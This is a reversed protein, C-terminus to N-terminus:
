KSKKCGFVVTIGSDGFKKSVLSNKRFSSPKTQRIRWTHPKEDVKSAIYDHNKAWLIAEQKSFKDKKFILTQISMNVPCSKGGRAYEDIPGGQKYQGITFHREIEKKLKFPLNQFEVLRSEAVDELVKNKIDGLETIHDNIFHLRQAKTWSNWVEEPSKGKYNNPIQGGKAMNKNLEAIKYMEQISHEWTTAVKWVFDLADQETNFSKEKNNFDLISYSRGGGVSGNYKGEERWSQTVYIYDMIPSIDGKTRKGRSSESKVFDSLQPKEILGGKAMTTKFQAFSSMSDVGDINRKRLGFIIDKGKLEFPTIDTKKGSLGPQLSFMGKTQLQGEYFYPTENTAIFIDGEKVEASRAEGKLVEILGPETAIFTKNIVGGNAMNVEGVRVVMKRENAIFDIISFAQNLVQQKGLVLPAELTQQYEDMEDTTVYPNFVLEYTDDNLRKVVADHHTIDYLYNKILDFDEGPNGGRHYAKGGHKMTNGVLYLIKSDAESHEYGSIDIDGENFKRELEDWSVKFEQTPFAELSSVPKLTVGSEDSSVVKSTVNAKKDTIITECSIHKIGLKDKCLCDENNNDNDNNEIEGGDEFSEREKKSTLAMEIAQKKPTGHKRFNVYDAFQRRTFERYPYYGDVEENKYKDDVQGGQQMKTEMNNNKFTKGGNELLMEAVTNYKKYAGYPLVRWEYYNEEQKVKETLLSLKKTSVFDIAEQKDDFMRSKLESVDDEVYVVKYKSIKGGHKVNITNVEDKIDCPIVVGGGASQNIRSLLKCHKKSAEKNIVTEGGELEVPQKSDTIIAKIGGQKHSKGQLLGGKKGDSTEIGREVNSVKTYTVGILRPSTKQISNLPFRKDSTRVVKTTITNVGVNTIKLLTKTSNHELLDGVRINVNPKKSLGDKIAM